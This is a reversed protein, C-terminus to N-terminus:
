KHNLKNSNLKELYRELCKIAKKTDEIPDKKKRFYRLATAQEIDLGMANIIDFLDCPTGKINFSYHDPNIPDNLRAKNMEGAIVRGGSVRFPPITASDFCNVTVKASQNNIQDKLEKFPDQKEEKPLQVLFDKVSQTPLNTKNSPLWGTSIDGRKYYSYDGSPKMGIDGFAIRIVEQLEEVTGDNVVAVKEDRLDQITYLKQFLREIQDDNFFTTQGWDNSVNNEDILYANGKTQKQWTQGTYRFWDGKKVRM